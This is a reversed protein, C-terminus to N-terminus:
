KKGMFLNDIYKNSSSNLYLTSKVGHKHVLTGGYHATNFILALNFVYIILFLCGAVRDLKGFRKQTFNSSLIYILFLIVLVSFNLQSQEAFRVHAELTTTIAPDSPVTKAAFNGTAVALFVGATGLLMLILACIYFDRLSKQIIIGLVIFLPAVFLLAIPFHVILPHLSGWNNIQALNTM